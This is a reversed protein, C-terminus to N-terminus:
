LILIRLNLLLVYGQGAMRKRKFCNILTNKKEMEFGFEDNFSVLRYTDDNFYIADEYRCILGDDKYKLAKMRMEKYMAVM